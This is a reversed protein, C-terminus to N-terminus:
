PKHRRYDKYRSFGEDMKYDEAEAQSDERLKHLREQEIDEDSYVQKAAHMMAERGYMKPKRMREGKSWQIKKRKWLIDQSIKKKEM